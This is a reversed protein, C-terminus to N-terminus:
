LKNDEDKNELEDLLRNIIKDYSDAFGRYKNLRLATYESVVIRTLGNRKM